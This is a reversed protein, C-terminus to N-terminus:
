RWGSGVPAEEVGRMDDLEMLQQDDEDDEWAACIEACTAFWVGDKSRMYEILREFAM